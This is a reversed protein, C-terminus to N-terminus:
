ATQVPLLIITQPPPIRVPVAVTFLENFVPPRYSGDVSWQNPKRVSPAGGAVTVAAGTHVPVSIITQPPSSGLKPADTWVPPRYLGTRSEQRAVDNAPAGVARSVKEATQVPLSITTKPPAILPPATYSIKLVPARYSGLDFLQTASEVVFAGEGRMPWVASQVPWPM